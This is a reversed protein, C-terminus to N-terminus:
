NSDLRKIVLPRLAMTMAQEAEVWGYSVIVNILFSLYISLCLPRSVVSLYISLSLSM